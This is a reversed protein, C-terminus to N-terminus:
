IPLTPLPQQLSTIATFHEHTSFVSNHHSTADDGTLSAFAFYNVCEVLGLTYAMYSNRCLVPLRKTPQM